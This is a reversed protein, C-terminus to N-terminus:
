NTGWRLWWRCKSMFNNNIKIYNYNEEWNKCRLEPYGKQAEKGCPMLNHKIAPLFHYSLLFTLLSFSHPFLFSHPISKICWVRNKLFKTTSTDWVQVHLLAVVIKALEHLKKVKFKAEAKEHKRCTHSFWGWPTTKTLNLSLFSAWAHMSNFLPLHYTRSMKDTKKRHLKAHDEYQLLSGQGHWILVM